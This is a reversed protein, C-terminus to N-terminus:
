PLLGTITLIIGALIGVGLALLLVSRRSVSRRDTGTSALLELMGWFLVITLEARLGNILWRETVFQPWMNLFLAIAYLLMFSANAAILSAGLGTLRVTRTAMLWTKVGLFQIILSFLVFDVWRQETAPWHAHFHIGALIVLEWLITSVLLMRLISGSAVTHKM